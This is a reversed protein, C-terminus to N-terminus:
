QKKIMMKEVFVTIKQWEEIIRDFEQKVVEESSDNIKLGDLYNIIGNIAGTSGMNVVNIAKWGKNKSIQERMENIKEREGKDSLESIFIGLKILNLAWHYRGVCSKLIKFSTKHGISYIQKAMEPNAPFGFNKKSKNEYWRELFVKKLDNYASKGFGEGFGKAAEKLIDTIKKDEESV